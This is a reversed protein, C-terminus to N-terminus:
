VMEMVVKSIDVFHCPIGAFMRYDFGSSVCAESVFKSSAGGEYNGTHLGGDSDIAAIIALALAHFTKESADSDKCAQFGRIRYIYSVVNTKDGHAAGFTEQEQNMDALTVIWGRLLNSGGIETMFITRLDAWKKSWREYDYAKGYNTVGKIAALILARANAENFAM